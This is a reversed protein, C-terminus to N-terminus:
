LDLMSAIARPNGGLDNLVRVKALGAARFLAAVAPAQEAGIEVMLAGGPALYGRADRTIRRYFDTGDAGGELAIRPEYRRIEPQLAALDAERIYPPNSVILDLRGFPPGGDIVNFCDARRLEVRAGLGLRRANRRAVEIAAASVDTAVVAAAPANAAIAIAIAGSGTGLDLVRCDQRGAIFEIAAEVVTETEPRPILVAPSVEFELSYFERRGLIYAVPERAARRRILEAYRTEACDDAVASNAILAARTVGAAEAMLLEADLRPNEVGAAALMAAADGILRRFDAGAKRSIAEM